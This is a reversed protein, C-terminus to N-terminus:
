NQKKNNINLDQNNEVLVFIIMFIVIIFFIIWVLLSKWDYKYIIGNCKFMYSKEYTNNDEIMKAIPISKYNGNKDVKKSTILLAGNNLSVKSILSVNEETIYIKDFGRYDFEKLDNDLQAAVYIVKQEIGSFYLNGMNSTIFSLTADNKYAENVILDQNEERIDKTFISYMKISELPSMFLAEGDCSLSISVIKKNFYNAIEPFSKNFNNQVLYNEDFDLKFEILKNKQSKLDIGIIQLLQKKDEELSKNCYIIYAYNNIKDIVFNNLIISNKIIYKDTNYIINEKIENINNENLKIKYLKATCNNSGEDLIFLNDEEDVEFSIVSIFNSCNKISNDYNNIESNPFPEYTHNKIDYKLFTSNTGNNRPSNFLIYNKYYKYSEFILKKGKIITDNNIENFNINNIDKHNLNGNSIIFCNTIYLLSLILHNIMM